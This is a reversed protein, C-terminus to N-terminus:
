SICQEYFDFYHHDYFFSNHWLLSFCGDVNKCRRKIQNIVKASSPGVGLGMYREAIVTCEMVILPRVRLPLPTRNVPDFAPYEHCTGCRFGPKDAYGLTSDYDMGSTAWARLTTPQEWRLFHMRGGWCPQEIGEQDCIHKLRQAEKRLLSPQNYTNYSPHLGIEHGRAHIERLLKRIQPSEPEYEADKQSTRGCIFYFASTLSHKESQTMLWDFTNLPDNRHIQRKSNLWFWPGLAANLPKKRKLLEITSARLLGKWSKFAFQSPTDVDHSVKIEFQHKQLQIDPWQRTIVQGLIDLWEDVIPRELYGHNHAHSSTAPFRNHDDLDTRGVEEMRSLMWYTLGLIDYHIITNEFNPHEILPTVPKELAPTPLPMALVPTYGETAPDWSGCTFDSRSKHFEPSLPIFHIIGESDPITLALSNTTETIRFRHGFREELIIELWKLATKSFQM